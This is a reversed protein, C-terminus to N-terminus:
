IPLPACYRPATAGGLAAMRDVWPGDWPRGASRPGPLPAPAPLGLGDRVALFYRRETLAHLDIRRSRAMLLSTGVLLSRCRSHGGGALSRRELHGHNVAPDPPSRVIAALWDM